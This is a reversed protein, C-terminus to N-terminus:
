LQIGPLMQDVFKQFINEAPYFLRLNLTFVNIVLHFFFLLLLIFWKIKIRLILRLCSRIGNSIQNKKKKKVVRKARSLIFGM